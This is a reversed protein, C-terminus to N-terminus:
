GLRVEAGAVRKASQRWEAQNSPGRTAQGAPRPGRRWTMGASAPVRSTRKDATHLPERCSGGVARRTMGAFAPNWACARGADPM